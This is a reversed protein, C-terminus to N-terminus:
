DTRNLHHYRTPELHLHVGRGLDRLEDSQQVQQLQECGRCRYFDVAFANPHGGEDLIWDTPHTGCARCRKAEHAQWILAADQDGQPWALFTSLPIGRPGCYAM